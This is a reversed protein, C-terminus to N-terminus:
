PLVTAVAEKPGVEFRARIVADLVMARLEPPVDEPWNELVEAITEQLTM